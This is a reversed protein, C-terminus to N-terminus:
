PTVELEPVDTDTEIVDDIPRRVSYPAVEGHGFRIALQAHQSDLGVLADFRTRLTQVEIPQNIFATRIDLAAAQLAFRQYARGAEIWAPKDDRESVFM